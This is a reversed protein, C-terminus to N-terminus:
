SRTIGGPAELRGKLGYETGLDEWAVRCANGPDQLLRLGELGKGLGGQCMAAVKVIRLHKQDGRSSKISRQESRRLVM